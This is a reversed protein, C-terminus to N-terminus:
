LKNYYSIIEILDEEKRIKLKNEKVFRKVESKKDAMAKYMDRKGNIKRAALVGMKIYYYRSHKYNQQLYNDM